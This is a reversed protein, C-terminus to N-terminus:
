EETSSVKSMNSVFKKNDLMWVKEIQEMFFQDKDELERMAYEGLNWIYGIMEQQYNGIAEVHRVWTEKKQRLANDRKMYEEQFFANLAWIILSLAAIVVIISAAKIIMPKATIITIIWESIKNNTGESINKLRDIVWRAVFPVAMILSGKIALLLKSKSAYKNRKKESEFYSDRNSIYQEFHELYDTKLWLYFKIKKSTQRQMWEEEFWNLIGLEIPRIGSENYYLKHKEYFEENYQNYIKEYRQCEFQKKYSWLRDREQTISEEEIAYGSPISNKYIDIKEKLKKSGIKKLKKKFYTRIKKIKKKFCM